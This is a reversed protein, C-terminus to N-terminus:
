VAVTPCEDRVRREFRTSHARAESVARAGLASSSALHFKKKATVM